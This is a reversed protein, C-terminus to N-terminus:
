RIFRFQIRNRYGTVLSRYGTIRSRYHRQRRLGRAGGGRGKGGGVVALVIGVVPLIHMCFGLAAWYRIVDEGRRLVFGVSLYEFVRMPLARRVAGVLAPPLARPLPVPAREAALWLPLSLLSLYLGGQLGHWYASVLLTVAARHPPGHLCRYLRYLYIGLPLLSLDQCGRMPLARRVAGVLAPPLARPLPVPAREAALWLPLSLLSLYLGGQLGHWYASVLLTVAARFLPPGPMRRHVYHQLWWQVTMNWRRLGERVGYCRETGWPDVTRICEYDWHEPPQGGMEGRRTPGCGPRAGWEKPYGGFAAAVCAAESSLWAVYFRLRFALFVPASYLLRWPFPWGWLAPGMLAGSPFVRGVVEAGLALLPVWRLRGWLLSPPVPPTPGWLWDQYTRLRYFPGTLLGLYCYSYCLIEVLGPCGQLGGILEGRESSTVGKLEAERQDQVDIAMSVMKLTLLLQLANAYPPPQPLGWLEPTRFFLLYGFTWVLTAWGCRRPAARLVLWTGLATVLSHLAHPGCTVLTLGAGLGSGVWQRFRPGRGKFLRGAPISCILVSVYTLEEPTM